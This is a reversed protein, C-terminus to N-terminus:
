ILEVRGVLPDLSVFDIKGRTSKKFLHLQPNLPAISTRRLPFRLWFAGAVASLLTVLVVPMLHWTILHLPKTSRVISQADRRLQIADCGSRGDRWCRSRRWPVGAQRGVLASDVATRSECMHGHVRHRDKRVPEDRRQNRTAYHFLMAIGSVMLIIALTTQWRQDRTRPDRRAVGMAAVIVAATAFFCSKSAMGPIRSGESVSRGANQTHHFLARGIRDNALARSPRRVPWLPRKPTLNGALRNVLAHHREDHSIQNSLTV